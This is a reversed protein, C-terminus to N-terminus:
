CGGVPNIASGIEVAVAVAIATVVAALAAFGVVAGIIKMIRVSGSSEATTSRHGVVMGAIVGTVFANLIAGTAPLYFLAALQTWGSSATICIVFTFLFASACLALPVWRAIRLGAPLSIRTTWKAAGCEPCLGPELGALSYGCKACVVGSPHATM